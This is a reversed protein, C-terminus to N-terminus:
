MDKIKDKLINYIDRKELISQAKRRISHGLSSTYSDSYAMFSSRRKSSKTKLYRSGDEMYDILQNIETMMAFLKSNEEQSLKSSVAECRHIYQDCRYADTLFAGSDKALEIWQWSQDLYSLLYILNKRVEDNSNEGFEMKLYDLIGRMEERNMKNVQTIVSNFDYIDTEVSFEINGKYKKMDISYSKQKDGLIFMRFKPYEKYVKNDYIKDLSRVIKASTKTASVQVGIKEKKDGLDIGPYNEKENNLNKLELGYVSNILYRVINEWYKNDDFLGMECQTQINMKERSLIDVIEKIIESEKLM